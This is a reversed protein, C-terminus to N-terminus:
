EPTTTAVLVTAAASASQRSCVRNRIMAAVSAAATIASIRNRIIRCIVRCLWRLAAAAPLPVFGLEVGGQVVHDLSQHREVGRRADDGEVPAVDVHVVQRGVDHLRAAMEAVQHLMALVVSREVAVDIREAGEDHSVDRATLDGVADHLALVSAGEQGDALRQRVAAPDGGHFVDGLPAIELLLAVAIVGEQALDDIM